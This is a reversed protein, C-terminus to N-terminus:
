GASSGILLNRRRQDKCWPRDLQMHAMDEGFKADLASCLGNEAGAVKAEKWFLLIVDAKSCSYPFAHFFAHTSVQFEEKFHAMKKKM